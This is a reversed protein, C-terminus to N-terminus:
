AALTLSVGLVYYPLNLVCLSHLFSPPLYALVGWGRVADWSPDWQIQPGEALVPQIDKPPQCRGAWKPLPLAPHSPTM